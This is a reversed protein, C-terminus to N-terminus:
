HYGLYLIEEILYDRVEFEIKILYEGDPFQYRVTNDPYEYKELMPYVQFLKELSDGVKIDRITTINASFTFFSHIKYNEGERDGLYSVKFDEYESTKWYVGEQHAAFTGDDVSVNESIPEGFQDKFENEDMSMKIINNKYFFMEFEAHKSNLSALHMYQALSLKNSNEDYGENLADVQIQLAEIRDEYKSALVENEANIKEYKSILNEYEAIVINKEDISNEFERNADSLEHNRVTMVISLLIFIILLLINIWHTVKMKKKM